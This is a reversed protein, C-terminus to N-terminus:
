KKFDICCSNICYHEGTEKPGDDFVHGLHANCQKCRVEVREMGMSTDKLRVINLDNDVSKSFAPWGCHSEFKADSKFLQAGCCRCVYLGPEFHKDFKGSFPKETGGERAVSYELPSLVKRWEEPTVQQPNRKCLTDMASKGRSSAAMFRSASKLLEIVRSM